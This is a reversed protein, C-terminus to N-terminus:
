ASKCTPNTPPRQQKEGQDILRTERGLVRVSVTYVGISSCLVVLGCERREAERGTAWETVTGIQSTGADANSYREEPRVSASASGKSRGRGQVHGHANTYARRARAGLPVTEGKPIHVVEKIVALGHGPEYNM